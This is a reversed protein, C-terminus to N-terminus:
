QLVPNAHAVAVKPFSLIDLLSVRSRYGSPEAAPPFVDLDFSATMDPRYSKNPVMNPGLFAANVGCFAKYRGHFGTVSGGGAGSLCGVVNPSFLDYINADHLMIQRTSDGPMSPLFNRNPVHHTLILMKQSPGYSSENNKIRDHLFEVDDEHWNQITRPPKYALFYKEIESWTTRSMENAHGSWLPCGLVLLNDHRQHATHDLITVNKPVKKFLGFLHDDERLECPGPVCYVHDWNDACWRIFDKTKESHTNGINGLLALNPAKRVALLKQAHKWSANQHVFLNSAYQIHFRRM